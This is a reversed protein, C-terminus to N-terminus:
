RIEFLAGRIFENSGINQNKMKPPHFDLFYSFKSIALFLPTLQKGNEDM